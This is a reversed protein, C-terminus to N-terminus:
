HFSLQFPQRKCLKSYGDYLCRTPGANAKTPPPRYPRHAGKRDSDLEQLMRAERNMEALRCWGRLLSVDLEVAKGGM